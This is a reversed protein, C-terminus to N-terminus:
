GSKHKTLLEIKDDEERAQAVSLATDGGDDALRPDAGLRLLAAMVDCDDAEAAHVILPTRGSQDRANIDAKSAVLLKVMKPWAALHLPTIGEGNKANVDAGNGILYEAIKYHEEGALGHLATFGYEDVSNVISPDSAIMAKVKEMDGYVAADYFEHSM